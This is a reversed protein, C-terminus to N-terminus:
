HAEGRQDDPSRLNARRRFQRGEATASPVTSIVTLGRRERSLESAFFVFWGDKRLPGGASGGFQNQALGPKTAGDFFNRANLASNQFYNFASAHLQNSGSRTEISVAAGTAHGLDAPIVTTVLNVAEISEMSPELVAGRLWSENNDMGDVLFNNNQGRQGLSNVSSNGRPSYPGYGEINGGEQGATVESVRRVLELYHRSNLPLDRWGM